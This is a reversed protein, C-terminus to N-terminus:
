KIDYAELSNDTFRPVLVRSRKSDFGIDAPATLGSMGAFAPEFAAGLKGKYINQGEWSSVYLVDGVTFMGDLMGKPTTTVDLKEGKPGLRYVENGGFTNVLVGAATVLVGNPEKLDKSKAIAKAAGKEIVYVADTGTPSLQDGAKLGTDTVYVKGDPGAAVDNLFTSGAIKINAKQAGTKLDFSKVTDIDAVWIEGKSIALGKPAHLTVKNTGGAVWKQTAVKGDPTVISIYGNNDQALPQGAINSVYYRDGDADYTVSEPTELGTVKFAPTPAAPGTPAASASASPAASASTSPMASPAASASPSASTTTTPTKAPEDGGGCAVALAFPLSSALTILALRKM